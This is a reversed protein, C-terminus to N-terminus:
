RSSAIGAQATHTKVISASVKRRQMWELSSRCVMVGIATGITDTILDTTDSTRTPIFVQLVEITLSVLFGLLISIAGPRTIGRVQSLYAFLCIGFPMFGVINVVNDQWYGLGKHYGKWPLTLFVPHLIFYHAPIALDTAPDLRNHVVAGGRENFLYLADADKETSVISMREAMWARYDATVQAATLARQHIVLGLITGSWSASNIPSNALVILGTLDNWTRAFPSAKALVGNEYVSTVQSDLCITLFVLEKQRFVDDIQILGTRSIGQPDVNNRRIVLSKGQQLLSFPEGPHASADFALITGKADTHTPELLIELTASPNAQGKARIPGVALVSGHRGFELGDQDRFWHVQNVPVKLPWLGAILIIVLIGLSLGGALIKYARHKQSDM